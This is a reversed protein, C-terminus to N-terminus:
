LRAPLVAGVKSLTQEGVFYTKGDRLSQIIVPMKSKRGNYGILICDGTKPNTYIVSGLAAEAEAHTMKFLAHATVVFEKAENSDLNVGNQGLRVNCASITFKYSDGYGSSSKGVALGHKQLVAKAAEMLEDTIERALARPIAHDQAM